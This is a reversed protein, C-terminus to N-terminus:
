SRVRSFRSRSSFPSILAIFACPSEEPLIRVYLWSSCISVSLPDTWTSGAHFHSMLSISPHVPRHRRVTPFRDPNRYDTRFTNGDAATILYEKVVAGKALEKDTAHLGAPLLGVIFSGTPFTEAGTFKWLICSNSFKSHNLGGSRSAPHIGGESQLTILGQEEHENM